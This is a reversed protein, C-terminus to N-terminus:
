SSSRGEEHAIPNERAGFPVLGALRAGIVAVGTDVGRATIKTSQDSM